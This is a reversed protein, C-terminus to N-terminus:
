KQALDFGDQKDRNWINTFNCGAFKLTMAGRINYIGSGKFNTIFEENGASGSVGYYAM